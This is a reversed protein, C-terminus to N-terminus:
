RLADGEAPRGEEDPHRVSYLDYYGSGYRPYRKIFELCSAGSSVALRREDRNGIVLYGAGERAELWSCMDGVGRSPLEIFRSRAYFAVRGDRAVVAERGDSLKAIQEGAYRVGRMDYGIPWLTKPLLAIAIAAPVLGRPLRWGGREVLRELLSTAAIAGVIIWGFAFPVLHVMFRTGTYSLSFGCFYFVIFAALFAEAPAALLRRGRTWLGAALLLTLPPGMAQVFNYFSAIFYGCVKELYLRPASLIPAIPSASASFGLQRWQDRNKSAFDGMGYMMAATFERGITWRGTTVRLFIIYPSAVAIFATAFVLTAIAAWRAPTTRWLLATAPIFTAGVVLFGIGETRYLYAVGGIAGAIACAGIARSNIGRLLMWSAAALLCIYGAETRVSASYAALEPHIAALAAAGLAIKRRGFAERFMLYIGAVAATGMLVSVLNGAIEWDPVLRHAGAILLPYLPSFVADLAKAWDGAAFEHAMRLYSAGDGSICFSTLGLYLRIGFAAALTIWLAARESIRVSDGLTLGSATGHVPAAEMVSAYELRLAPM